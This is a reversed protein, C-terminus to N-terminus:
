VAAKTNLMGTVYNGGTIRFAINFRNYSNIVMTAFTLETLEEESFIERAEEYVDDPVERNNLRTIAEAWAFAARERDTYLETERWGDLLLLRQTTEGMALLDKSHMDLCFACGNIQSVRMYILHLLPQEVVPSRHLYAGLSFLAKTVPFGKEIPNFRESM